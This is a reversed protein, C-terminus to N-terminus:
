RTDSIESWQLLKRLESLSYECDAEDIQDSFINVHSKAEMEVSKVFSAQNNNNLNFLNIRGVAGTIDFDSFVINKDRCVKGIEYFKIIDRTKQEVQERVGLVKESTLRKVGALGQVSDPNLRLVTLYDDLALDFRRTDEYIGARVLYLDANERDIKLAKSLLDMARQTEGRQLYTNVRNGIDYNEANYTASEGYCCTVLSM